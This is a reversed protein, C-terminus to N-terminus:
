LVLRRGARNCRRLPCYKITHAFDGNVGCTPCTYARLVPCLIVGRQDKLLHSTFFSDTEGNNKCFVCVENNSRRTKARRSEGAMSAAVSSGHEPACPGRSRIDPNTAAGNRSDPLSSRSGPFIPPSPILPRLLDQRCISEKLSSRSDSRNSPTILPPQELQQQCCSDRSSAAVASRSCSALRRGRDFSPAVDREVGNKRFEEM